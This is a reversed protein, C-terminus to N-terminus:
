FVCVCVELPIQQVALPIGELLEGTSTVAEKAKGFGDGVAAPASAVTEVLTEVQVTYRQCKAIRPPHRQRLSCEVVYSSARSLQPHGDSSVISVILCRPEQDAQPCLLCPMVPMCSQSVLPCVLVRTTKAGCCCSVFFASPFLLFLERLDIALTALRSVPKYM